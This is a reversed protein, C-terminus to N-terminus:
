RLAERYISVPVRNQFSKIGQRRKVDDPDLGFAAARKEWRELLRTPFPRWEWELPNVDKGEARLREAEELILELELYGLVETSRGASRSKPTLEGWQALDRGAKYLNAVDNPTVSEIDHVRITLSAVIPETAESGRVAIPMSCTALDPQPPVGTLLFYAIDGQDLWGRFHKSAEDLDLVAEVLHLANRSVQPSVTLLLDQELLVGRSGSPLSVM